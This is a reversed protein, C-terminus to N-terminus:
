QLARSLSEIEKIKAELQGKLQAAQQLQAQLDQNAKRIEALTEQAKLTNKKEETLETELTKIKQKASHLDEEVSIRLYREQDLAGQSQNAGQYSKIAIGVSASVILLIM